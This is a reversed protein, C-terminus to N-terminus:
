HDYRETYLIAAFDQGILNRGPQIFYQVQNSSLFSEGYNLTLNTLIVMDM